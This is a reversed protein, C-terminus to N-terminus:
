EKIIEKEETFEVIDGIECELARCIRELAELSVGKNKSLRALTASTIGSSDRLQTKNLSKDISLKWLKDYSVPM